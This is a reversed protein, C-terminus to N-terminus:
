ELVFSVNPNKYDLNKDMTAGQMASVTVLFCMRLTVYWLVYKVKLVDRYTIWCTLIQDKFLMLSPINRFDRLIM